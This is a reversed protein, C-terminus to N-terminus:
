RMLYIKGTGNVFYSSEDKAKTARNEIEDGEIKTYVTYLYVGNALRDGYTDRGDWAFESINNGIHIPGFEEKNIERVIKGNVTMIRVMLQDPVKSGTLTFVFRMQTTFPNPYPYFYTISSKNVVTFDVQYENNGAKNGSADKAQVKLTYLGDSLKEPNYLLQARNGESAPMFQVLPNNLFVREFDFDKPKRIYLEFTSTDKQLLFKNKDTSSIIIKPLPSVIDGNMIKQGDFTVELLPNSVDKNVVFSKRYFNNVYTLEAPSKDPNISLQLAMNGSMMESSVKTKLLYEGNEAIAPIKIEKRVPILRNADTIELVTQVSDSTSAGLNLIPLDLQLSDGQEINEAYFRYNNGVHVTLEPGPEFSVQWFNIQHPTRYTSDQFNMRLKLYPFVQANISSLDVDTLTIGAILLTDKGQASSGIVDLWWRGRVTPDEDRMSLKLRGYSKAPGIAETVMNGAYWKLKINRRISFFKLDQPDSPLPPLNPANELENNTVTDEIAEGLAEGKKGIVAWATNPNNVYAVKQSGIKAFLNKNNTSWYPVGSSYRSFMAVYYGEPVSDILRALEDVGSSINTNFTYYRVSQDFKNAQVFACNFPFNPLEYPMDVQFPEFVLVVTGQSICSGVGANLLYPINVGMRRHDWRKNEIGLVLENNSFEIKKSTDNLEIFTKSSVNRIQEFRAQHWGPAHNKISTFSSYIWNGGENEPVNLKARWFYVMSDLDKLGVKWNALHTGLIIGSNKYFPSAVSFGFGTDIEFIYEAANVFLNNNQVWLMISDKSVIAYPSPLLTQLGSGPIFYNISAENNTYSIEDIKKSPNIKVVFGNLGIDKKELGTVWVYFTDRYFPGIVQKIPLTKVSNDPFTRSLEIQLTDLQAKALNHVIVGVALSDNQVSANAPSIFLDTTGIKYDPKSPAYLVYAPDGQLLIQLAHSRAYSENGQSSIELAKQLQLGISSGYAETSMQRYLNDMQFELHNTFTLNTHALWGIAGKGNACLYDKGYVLGTGLPDVDNANGINCGNFYYFTAHNNQVLDGISGFDMDLVTLSGHGYFTMMSIGNNLHGVLKDKLDNETPNTSSKFYAFIKAGNPKNQVYNGITALRNKFENQQSEYSGGSLHLFHKRWEQISDPDTELAKLKNLYNWVEANTSAPIRGTAIAPAGNNGTFGNTFMHDSSPVGIAPVLNLGFAEKELKLLNNQYGRGLLLLYSPVKSQQSYLHKAFRRIALPHIYGYFYYNSLDEVYALYTKYKNSRYNAYDTASIQLSKHSVLLYEYNESPNPAVFVTPKLQSEVLTTSGNQVWIFGPTTAFPFLARALLGVKNGEARANTRTDWFIPEAGTFNSLQVLNKSAVIPNPLLLAQSTGPYQANQTYSLQVYSVGIFDSNVAIDNIVEFIFRLSDGIQSNPITKLIKREGYGRFLTDCLLFSPSNNASVYVRLHHNPATPNDLFFDSAGIVKIEVNSSSGTQMQPTQITFTRSQGQGILASMMGEADGYESLYYKQDAPLFSGWYYDEQPVVRKITRFSSEPTYSGFDTDTLAQIRLPSIVSTDPLLTLFYIGTDSFLSRFNQAQESPNRFLETDLLGDNPEALFEIFDGQNLVADSGGKVFLAQEVGNKFLQIKNPNKGSWSQLALSDLKYLGKETIKIKFYPQYPRIWEFGLNSQASLASSIGCFCLLLYVFRFGINKNKNM